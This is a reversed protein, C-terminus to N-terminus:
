PLIRAHRKGADTLHDLFLADMREDEALRAEDIAEGIVQDDLSPERSEHFLFVGVKRSRSLPSSGSPEQRAIGLSRPWLPAGKQACTSGGPIQDADVAIFTM